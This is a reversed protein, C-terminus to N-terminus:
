GIAGIVCGAVLAALALTCYVYKGVPVFWKGIPKAAGRNVQEEAFKKGAVWFFMVGALLAGLPCIFISVVDMWQSTIAQICVAVAGGVVLVLVTAPIRKMGVHEQMFAVSVEYMNIISTVGAFLVCVFFVIGVIRGIAMGNLVNVLHVFMLGPGSTDCSVGGAAMAPLIVIAALLAALTDFLAVNRASAPINEKDSLYSGYIVSGNGAVSLSFFAQGFAYIWVNPDAFGEANLTFIYRYGEGAGPLFAIYVALVVFLGFLAPMLIKNAREIGRSVGLAMIVLAVVAAVIVWLTNGWAGAVVDFTGGITAMDQGMGYLEGSFAMFTYKFVWGMVVTYGIGLGLSGLVPLVGIAQGVKRNGRMETCMAFAGMPGSRAARGLAFEGMVGTSGILIVFIFYPILFTLGGYRSVMIPFRWINGMGVASGICALIFGWRSTFNDRSTSHESMTKDEM